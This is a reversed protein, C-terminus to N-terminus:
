WSRLSCRHSTREADAWGCVLADNWGSPLGGARGRMSLCKNRNVAADSCWCYSLYVANGDLRHIAAESIGRWREINSTILSSLCCHPGARCVFAGQERRKQVQSLLFSGGENVWWRLAATNVLSRISNSKLCLLASESVNGNEAVSARKHSVNLFGSDSSAGVSVSVSVVVPFYGNRRCLSTSSSGPETIGSDSQYYYDPSILFSHISQGQVVVRQPFM